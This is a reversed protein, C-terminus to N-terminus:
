CVIPHYEVPFLNVSIKGQSTALDFSAREKSGLVNQCPPYHNSISKSFRRKGCWLIKEHERKLDKM